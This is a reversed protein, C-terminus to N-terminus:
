ILKLIRVKDKDKKAQREKEDLEKRFEKDKFEDSTGQGPESYFL